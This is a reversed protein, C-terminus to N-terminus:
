WEPWDEDTIKQHISVFFGGWLVAVFLCGGLAARKM